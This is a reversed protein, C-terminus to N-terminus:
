ILIGNSINFGAVEGNVRIYHLGTTATNLVLLHSLFNYAIKNRKQRYKDNERDTESVKNDRSSNNDAAGKHKM